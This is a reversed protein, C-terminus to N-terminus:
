SDDNKSRAILAELTEITRLLSDRLEPTSDTSTSDLQKAKIQFNSSEYDALHKKAEALDAEYLKRQQESIPM